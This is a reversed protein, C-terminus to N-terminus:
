KFPNLKDALADVAKAVLEGVGKMIREVLDGIGPGRFDNNEEFLQRGREEQMRLSKVSDFFAKAGPPIKNQAGAIAGFAQISEERASRSARADMGLDGLFFRELQKGYGGLAEGVVDGVGSETSGRLAAAGAGVATGLGVVGLGKGVTDKLSSAIGGATRAAEHTLGTLDSKAQTTDLTVRIKLEDAM